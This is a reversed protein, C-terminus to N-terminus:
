SPPKPAKKRKKHLLLQRRKRAKTARLHVNICLSRPFILRRSLWEHLRRIPKSPMALPDQMAEVYDIVSIRQKKHKVSLDNIDFKLKLLAPFVFLFLAQATKSCLNRLLAAVRPPPIPELGKEKEGGRKKGDDLYTGEAIIALQSDLALYRGEQPRLCLYQFPKLADFCAMVEETRTMQFHRTLKQVMIRGVRSYPLVINTFFYLLSFINNRTVTHCVMVVLSNLHRSVFNLLKRISPLDRDRIEHIDELLYALTEARYQRELDELPSLSIKKGTERYTERDANCLILYRHPSKRIIIKAAETKGSGSPGIILFSAPFRNKSGEGLQERSHTSKGSRSPPPDRGSLSTPSEQNYHPPSPTEEEESADSSSTYPRHEQETGRGEDSRASPTGSGEGNRNM